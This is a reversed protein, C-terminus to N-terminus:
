ALLTKYLQAWAKKDENMCETIDLSETLLCPLSQDSQFRPQDPGESDAFVHKRM